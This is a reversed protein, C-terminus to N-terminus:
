RGKGPSPSHKERNLLSDQWKITPEIFAGALAGLAVGIVVALGIYPLAAITAGMVLLALAAGAAAGITGGKIANEKKQELTLKDERRKHANIQLLDQNSLAKAANECGNRMALNLPTNGNQDRANVDAGRRLLLEAVEKHDHVAAWHLATTSNSGRRDIKAGAELLQEVAKTNGNAAAYHLAANGDKDKANVDVGRKLLSAVVEEHGGGAAYHLATNGDKDKANVKAGQSLLAEVEAADGQKAAEHLTIAM